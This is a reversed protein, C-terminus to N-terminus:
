IDQPPTNIEAQICQKVFHLTALAHTLIHDLYAQWLDIGFDLFAISIFSLM